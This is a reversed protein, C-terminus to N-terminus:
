APVAEARPRVKSLQERVCSMLQAPSCPKALFPIGERQVWEKLETAFESASMALYAPRDAEQLYYVDAGTMDPLEFDSLVLDVAQGRLVELAERGTAATVVAFEKSLLARFMERIIQTDEILLIKKVACEM